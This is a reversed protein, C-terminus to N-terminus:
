CMKPKPGLPQIKKYPLSTDVPPRLISVQVTALFPWTGSDAQVGIKAKGNELLHSCEDLCTFILALARIPQGLDPWTAM